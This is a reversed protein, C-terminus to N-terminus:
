WRETELVERQAAQLVPDLESPQEQYLENLRATVETGDAAALLSELAETYLSSRSCGRRRALQEAAAFVADPISIATKM